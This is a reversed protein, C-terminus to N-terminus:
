EFIIELTVSTYFSIFDLLIVFYILLIIIELIINRPKHKVM